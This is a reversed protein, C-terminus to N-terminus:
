QNKSYHQSHYYNGHMRGGSPASYDDQRRASLLFLIFAIVCIGGFVGGVVWAILVNEDHIVDSDDDDDDVFVTANATDAVLFDTANPDLQELFLRVCTGGIGCAYGNSCQANSTCGCTGNTAGSCLNRCAGNLSDVGNVCTGGPVSCTFSGTTVCTGALAATCTPTTATCVIGTNGSCRGQCVGTGAPCNANSACQASGQGCTGFAGGICKLNPGSTCNGDVRCIGTQTPAAPLHCGPYCLRTSPNCIFGAACQDTNTCGCTGSAPCIGHCLNGIENFSCIYSIDVTAGNFCKTVNSCVGGPACTSDSTCRLSLNNSCVKSCTSLAVCSSNSFCTNGGPICTGTVAGLCQLNPGNACETATFCNPQPAYNPVVGVGVCQGNSCTDLVTNPNGDDCSLTNPTFVCGTVPNCSDTTCPNNDNCVLADGGMCVQGSCIDNVTCINNDNCPLTTSIDTCTGNQCITLTCPTTIPGCDADVFCQPAPTPSPTPAPTPSPTPVPTPCSINNVVFITQIGTCTGNYCTDEVTNPNGDDCPVESLAVFTCGVSSNCSSTVCQGINPCTLPTTVCRKNLCVDDITCADNDSCLAGNNSVSSCFGNLCTNIECVNDTQCDLDCACPQRGCYGPYISSTNRVCTLGSDCQYNEMCGCNGLRPVGYTCTETGPCDSDLYCRTSTTVSCNGFSYCFPFVTTNTLGLTLGVDPFSCPSQGNPTLASAIVCDVPYARTYNVFTNSPCSSCPCELDANNCGHDCTHDTSNIPVCWDLTCPDSDDCLYTIGKCQGGCCTDNATCSSGDDCSVGENTPPYYCIGTTTNCFNSTCLNNDECDSDIICCDSIRTYVCPDNGYPVNSDCSAVFCTIPPCQANLAATDFPLYQCGATVNCSPAFYCNQPACLENVPQHCCGSTMNCYMHPSLPDTICTDLTCAISDDCYAGADQHVFVCGMSEEVCEARSCEVQPELQTCVVPTYVCGLHVDCIDNTCYLGDNCTVNSYICQHQDNCEVFISCNGYPPPYQNCQANNNCCNPIPTHICGIENDCTDVTCVDFDDCDVTELICGLQVDCLPTHCADPTTCNSTNAVHHCGDAECTDITCAISDDCNANPLLEYCGSVNDFFYLGGGPPLTPVTTYNAICQITACSEPYYLNQTCYDDRLQHDCGTVADWYPSESGAICNDTTCAFGDDCYVDRPTDTCGVGLLCETLMCDYTHPCNSNVPTFICGLSTSCFYEVCEPQLGGCSANNAANLCGTIPDVGSINSSAACSDITCPILDDCVGANYTIVCGTGEIHDLSLPDCVDTSCSFGDDCRVDFPVYACGNAENYYANEPLATQPACYDDTCSSGDDCFNTVNFIICGTLPDHDNGHPDCYTDQCGYPAATCSNNVPTYVCGTANNALPDTPSCTDTTCSYGDSCLGDTPAFICTLSETCIDLTCAIDDNCYTINAVCGDVGAVGTTNHPDCMYFQCVNMNPGTEGCYNNDPVYECGSRPSCSDITCAIGDDCTINEFACGTLANCSDTTCLNNDDCIILDYICGYNPSCSDVTCMNGDNCVLDTHTCMHSTSDCIDVTCPNGDDCFSDNACSGPLSIYECECFFTENMGHDCLLCLDITGPNCDNCGSHVVEIDFLSNNQPHCYGITVNGVCDNSMTCEPPATTTPAPCSESVTYTHLCACTGNSLVIQQDNTCADSDDCNLADCYHVCQCVLSTTETLVDFTLVPLCLDTTAGNSDNCGANLGPALTAGEPGVCTGPLLLSNSCDTVATSFDVFLASIAFFLVLFSKM